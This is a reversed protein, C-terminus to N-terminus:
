AAWAAEILAVALDADFPGGVFRSRWRDVAPDPRTVAAVLEDLPGDDVDYPYRMWPLLRDWAAPIRPPGFAAVDHPVDSALALAPVGRAVALTLVTGAAVVFDHADIDGYALGGNERVTVDFGADLLRRHTRLNAAAAAPEIRGDNLQHVPAFLVRRVDAPYRPAAQPCYSWGVPVHPVPCGYLAAVHAQGVGHVLSLRINPHPDYVAWTLVPLGGHPYVVVRDHTDILRRHVDVWTDDHDVLAVDGRDAVLTHGAAALADAFRRGKGGHDYFAVRM